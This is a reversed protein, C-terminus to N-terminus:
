KKGEKKEYEEVFYGPPMGTKKKFATVFHQATSFGAEDALAGNTYKRIQPEAKLRGVLYDIRLDNIYNIFSKGRRVSIVKALYKSNTDFAEALKTSTIEKKLFGHKQEFSELQRVIHNVIVPNIDLTDNTPSQTDTPAPSENKLLEEFRRRYQKRLTKHRYFLLGFGLVLVIITAKLTMSLGQTHNLQSQIQQKESLLETTDYEKYVKKILYRFEKGLVSDAQLLRDVYVLEQTPMEKHNYYKILYEYSRRLDPRLFNKTLFITDVNKFHLAASDLSGLEWYAKGLNFHAISENAYDGDKQIQPLAYTLQKVAASYNSKELEIVGQASELYPLLDKIRLRASEALALHCTVEAKELNGVFTYCVTLCHLSKLYPLPEEKSFYAICENFLSIAEHYYGLYYKIQAISYKVKNKLYDDKTAVLYSNARIYNDLARQHSNRQYYVIGRTLYADGILDNDGSQRAAAILSDAYVLRLKEPCEHLMERYAFVIEPANNEQKAKRLYAELYPWAKQTGQYLDIQQLLADYSLTESPQQALALVTFFLSIVFGTIKMKMVNKIYSYAITLHM